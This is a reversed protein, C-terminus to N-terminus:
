ALDFSVMNKLTGHYPEEIVRLIQERIQAGVRKFTVGPVWGPMYKLIPLVNVLYTGPAAATMSEAFCKGAMEVLPDHTRRVPLGYTM